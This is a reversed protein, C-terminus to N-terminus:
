ACILLEANPHGTGREPQVASAQATLVDVQRLVDRQAPSYLEDLAAVIVERMKRREVNQRRIDDAAWPREPSRWNVQSVTMMKVVRRRRSENGDAVLADFAERTHTPEAAVMDRLSASEREDSQRTFIRILSLDAESLDAAIAEFGRPTDAPANVQLLATIDSQTRRLREIEAETDANLHRLDDLSAPRDGRVAEVHALPVGLEAIRRVQLVRILHHVRYQKYGNQMREPVDLLGLSHYHRITNVTTGALDALERTSWTM